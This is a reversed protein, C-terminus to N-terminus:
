FDYTAGMSGNQDSYAQGSQDSNRMSLYYQLNLNLNKAILYAAGLSGWWYTSTYTNSGTGKQSQWGLRGTLTTKSNLRHTLTYTVGYVSYVDGTNSGTSSGVPSTYGLTDTGFNTAGAGAGVASVRPRFYFSMAQTTLGHRGTVSSFEPSFSVSYVLGSYDTGGGSGSSSSDDYKVSDYGVSVRGGLRKTIDGMVGIGINNDTSASSTSHVPDEKSYNYYIFGRLPVLVPLPVSVQGNFSYQDSGQNNYSGSPRYRSYAIGTSFNWRALTGNLGLNFVNDKETVPGNNELANGQVGGSMPGQGGAGNNTDSANGSTYQSTTWGASVDWGKAFVIRLLQPVSYNVHDVVNQSADEKLYTIWNASPVCLYVWNKRLPLTVPFSGGLNNGFTGKKSSSEGPNSDFFVSESVSGEVTRNGMQM